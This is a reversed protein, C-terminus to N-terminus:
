KQIHLERFGVCHCCYLYDITASTNGDDGADGDGEGGGDDDDYIMMMMGM